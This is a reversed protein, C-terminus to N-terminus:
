TESIVHVCSYIAPLGEAIREDVIVGAQTKGGGLLDVLWNAPKILTGGNDYEGSPLDHSRRFIPALLSM